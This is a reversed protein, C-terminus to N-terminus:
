IQITAKQVDQLNTVAGSPVATNAPPKTASVQTPQVISTPAQTPASTPEKTPSAGINCALSVLLILAGLLLFPKYLSLKMNSDKVFYYGILGVVVPTL